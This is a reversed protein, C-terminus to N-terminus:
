RLLYSNPPEKGSHTNSQHKGWHTHPYVDGETRAFTLIRTCHLQAMGQAAPPHGLELHKHRVRLLLNTPLM